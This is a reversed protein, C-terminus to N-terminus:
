EFCSKIFKRTHTAITVSDDSLLNASYQKGIICGAEKTFLPTCSFM